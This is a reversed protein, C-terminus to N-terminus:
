EVGALDILGGNAVLLQEARVDVVALEIDPAPRVVGDHQRQGVLREAARVAGPQAGDATRGQVVGIGFLVTV